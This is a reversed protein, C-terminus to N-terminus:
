NKDNYTKSKITTFNLSDVKKNFNYNLTIKNSFISGSFVIAKSKIKNHEIIKKANALKQKLRIQLEFSDSDTYCGIEKFDVIIDKLNKRENPKLILYEQKFKEKINVYEGIIYDCSIAKGNKYILYDLSAVTYVSSSTDSDKPNSIPNFFTNQTLKRLPTKLFILINHSTTNRLTLDIKYSIINQKNSKSIIIEQSYINASILFLTLIFSKM